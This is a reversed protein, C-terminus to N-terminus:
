GKGDGLENKQEKENGVEKRENRVTEWKRKMTWKMEKMGKTKGKNKEYRKM